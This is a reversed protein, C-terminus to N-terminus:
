LFDSIDRENDSAESVDKNNKHKEKRTYKKESHSGAGTKPANKAVLNRPTTAPVVPKKAAKAEFLEYLRM